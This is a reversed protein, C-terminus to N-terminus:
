SLCLFDDIKSISKKPRGFPGSQCFHSMRMLIFIKKSFFDDFTRSKLVRRVALFELHHGGSAGLDVKPSLPFYANRTFSKESKAEPAAGPGRLIFVFTLRSFM